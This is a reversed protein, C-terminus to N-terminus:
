PHSEHALLCWHRTQSTINYSFLVHETCINVHSGITQGNAKAKKQMSEPTRISVQSRFTSKNEPHISPRPFSQSRYPPISPYPQPIFAIVVVIVPETKSTVLDSAQQIIPPHTPLCQRSTGLFDHTQPTKIPEPMHKREPNGHQVSPRAIRHAPRRHFHM